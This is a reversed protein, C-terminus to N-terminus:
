FIVCDCCADKSPESIKNMINRVSDSVIEFYGDLILNILDESNQKTDLVEKFVNSIRKLISARTIEDFEFIMELIVSMSSQREENNSRILNNNNISSHPNSYLKIEINEKFCSKSIDLINDLTNLVIELCYVKKSEYKVTAKNENANDSCVLFFNSFSTGSNINNKVKVTSNIQNNLLAYFNINEFENISEIVQNASNIRIGIKKNLFYNVQNMILSEKEPKLEYYKIGFFYNGSPFDNAKILRIKLRSFVDKSQENSKSNNNNNYKKHSSLNTKEIKEELLRICEEINQKREVANFNRITKLSRDITNSAVLLTEIVKYIFKEVNVLLHNYDTNENLESLIEHIKNKKENDFPTSTNLTNIDTKNVIRQFFIDDKLFWVGKNFSDSLFYGHTKFLKEFKDHIERYKPNSLIEPAFIKSQRNMSVSSNISIKEKKKM